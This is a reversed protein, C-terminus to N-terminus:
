VVDHHGHPSAPTQEGSAGTLRHQQSGLPAHPGAAVPRRSSTLGVVRDLVVVAAPCVRVVAVWFTPPVVAELGFAAVAHTAVGVARPGGVAGVAGLDGSPASTCSREATRCRPSATTIAPVPPMASPRVTAM